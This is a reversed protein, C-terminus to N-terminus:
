KLPIPFHAPTASVVRCHSFDDTLLHVRERWHRNAEVIVFDIVIVQGAVIRANSRGVDKIYGRGTHAFHDLLADSEAITPLRGEVYPSVVCDRDADFWLPNLEPQVHSELVRLRIQREDYPKLFKFVWDGRRVVLTAEHTDRALVVEDRHTFSPRTM